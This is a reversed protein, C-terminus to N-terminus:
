SSARRFVALVARRGYRATGAGIGLVIPLFTVYVRWTGLIAGVHERTGMAGAIAALEVAGAGSPTPVLLQGNLLGFSAISIVGLPPRVGFSAAVIPLIAVRAILSVISLVVM